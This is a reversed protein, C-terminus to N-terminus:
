AKGEIFELIRESVSVADLRYKVFLEDMSGHELFQEPWGLKLLKVDSKSQNVFDSVASGFGGTTINDELTVISCTRAMSEALGSKDLPKVFRANVLGVSYGKDRLIGAADASTKVMSGLAWIEVDSGTSILECKATEIEPTDGSDSVICNGGRPYRIVCPKNLNLAYELMKGLEEVNKPAMVTLGPMHSLYSLDYIGQHTEGDNGVNGARDVAFVVPLGQICVDSIIQDYARQLFSSYIAVVPKLGQAALAAAFTVAHGEAIGVDFTREPFTDKFKKLGTGEIMAASIAVIRDDSEGLETMKSGFAGYFSDQPEKSLPIGTTVDFPGIGHFMEPKIEANRYGKGKKTVTHIIVSQEVNGALSLIEILEGINHGDVPGFYKFGLEEFFAGDVIAYKVSDKIHEIGNFLGEGVGPLRTLKSKVQKKFDLYGRSMRLRSLNKSIGGTNESISMKNDNLVIIVKSDSAGLNNLAEYALGGTLAGDGVIAVVHYNEKKLDRAAAFGAALSISTSSHGTSFCDHVSEDSRPFGSIGGLQRLTDFREARGTLLKHVYSQHGVDWILKDRPSYFVKHLAITLEVIGLNSALHGGTKSVTDLLVERIEYSLLELEKMSMNHIDEPLLNRKM